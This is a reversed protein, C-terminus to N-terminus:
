NSAMHCDRRESFHLLEAPPREREDEGDAACADREREALGLPDIFLLAAHPQEPKGDAGVERQQDPPECKGAGASAGLEDAEADRQQGGRKEAMASHAAVEDRDKLKAKRFAGCREGSACRECAVGRCAGVERLQEARVAVSAEGTGREVGIPGRVRRLEDPLACDACRPAAEGDRAIAGHRHLLVALVLTDGAVFEGGAFREPAAGAGAM